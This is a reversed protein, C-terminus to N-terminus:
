KTAVKVYAYAVKIKDLPFIAISNYLRHPEWHIGYANQSTPPEAKLGLVEIAKADFSIGEMEYVTIWDAKGDIFVVEIKGNKYVAKPGYKTKSQQSPKGLIKAVDAPTKGAILEINIIPEASALVVSAALLFAFLTSHKQNM